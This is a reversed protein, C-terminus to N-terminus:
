MTDYKRFFQWAYCICWLSILIFGYNNYPFLTRFEEFSMKVRSSSALTGDQLAPCKDGLSM